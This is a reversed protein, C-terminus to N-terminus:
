KVLRDLTTEFAEKYAVARGKIEWASEMGRAHKEGSASLQAELETIREQAVRAEERATEVRRTANHLDTLTEGATTRERYLDREVYGKETELRRITVIHRDRLKCWDEATRNKDRANM